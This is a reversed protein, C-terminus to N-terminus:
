TDKGRIKVNRLLLSNTVVSVSSLSMALAAFEPRMTIGVSSFLGAAVPIMVVNYVLAWFMNQRIKGYIRESLSFAGVVDRLDNRVLVIDGSEIAIDSGSGIAIGADAQILAPADNIGDGVMAVQEGTKQLAEVEHAKDEPLVDAIVHEIGISAAISRATTENDGTLMRVTIGMSNLAEVVSRAEPKVTDAVVIWGLFTGERALYIVSKGEREHVMGEESVPVDHEELFRRNGLVHEAGGIHAIVGKGPVTDFDSVEGGELGLEDAKAVIADALPHSAKREISAATELVDESSYSTVRPTGLTLTGTKDFVVTTAAHVTELAEGSKILIGNTAGVGTGVTIATPTALGLACPCAVVLVAIMTTLSFFFTADFVLYWLALSLVAISAVVPVFYAAVRDAFRQIPPKSSQAKEVFAVIQSLLADAGVKTARVRIFGNKNITAGFVESGENKEQPIPEGTLMSEDVTSYGEVVVGDVPVKEGPRVVVIDGERIFEVPMEVETGDREVVAYKAQLAVLKQLAQSTKGKAISEMMKGFIVFTFIMATTEYFLPGEYFFTSGVSYLYAATTGMIVLVDMNASANRLSYYAGRYFSRGSIFQVPTTLVFLVLAKSPVDIFHTILIIPISLLATFIFLNRFPTVETTRERQERSVVHYGLDEITAEFTDTSAILPNYSVFVKGTSFNVSATSVGELKAFGEEISRACNACHMGEVALVAQDEGVGYGQQRIVEALDAGSVRADDYTVTATNLSLNLTAELVGETDNLRGEISRACNACHM